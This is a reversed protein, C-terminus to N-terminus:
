RFHFCISNSSNAMKSSDEKKSILSRLIPRLDFLCSTSSSHCKKSSPLSKKLLSPIGRVKPNSFLSDNTDAVIESLIVLFRNRVERDFSRRVEEVKKKKQQAGVPSWCGRCVLIIVNLSM